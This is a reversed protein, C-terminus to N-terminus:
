GARRAFRFRAPIALRAGASTAGILGTPRVALVAGLTAFVVVDRYQPGFWLAGFEEVVGLVIGGLVAGETSGLGGIIIVTFARLLWGLGVTPSFSYAVGILVGGFTAMVASIGLTMAYVHPVDIGVASAAAPDEAAARLERGFSTAHVLLRLAVALGIAVAFSVVMVTRVTTGLLSFGATGYSASLSRPDTTFEIVLLTQVVISVGFTAVLPPEFGHRMTPTLVLRQIPYAVAFMVPSVVVACVLPDWGTRDQLVWVMFAGGILFESHALNTLRMVGVVLTLGLAVAAYIGGLLVGNILASTM